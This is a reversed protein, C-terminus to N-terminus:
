SIKRNGSKILYGTRNNSIKALKKLKLLNEEEIKMSYCQKLKRKTKEISNINKETNLYDDIAVNIVEYDNQDIYIAPQVHEFFSAFYNPSLTKFFIIRERKQVEPNQIQNNM